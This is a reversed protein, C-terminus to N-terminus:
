VKFRSVLESLRASLRELEGVSVVTGQIAEDNERAMAAIADINETVTNSVQRQQETVRVIQDLGQRVDSVSENAADLVEAVREASRHSSALYELSAMVTQRVADSKANLSRTVEDIEIASQASKEALKRVEDAVVAFGRGHEGARAAEIAANLALLNTQEAIERVQRTMDTIAATSAMLDNEAQSMMSVTGEVRGVDDKLEALSTRGEESRALSEGSRQYVEGASSAIEGIHGALSEVAGAAEVSQTNQHHSGRALRGAGESLASASASVAASAAGVERVLDAITAMMQNFSAAARGIEDGGRVDLRRTLDGEGKAIEVLGDSMANLPRSVFRRIFLFVVAMLPLSVLCAFVISQNRFGEVARHTKELSIRMSVAGLPTKEPVIHCMLCNKGLYNSSALAPYVVRLAEGKVPDSEIGIYTKGENVAASEMPDSPRADNGVGPGFQKNVAPGRLVKLERVASLEKIQDLFVDRKAVTGTMMMGTLGALTMENMSHALDKAQDIAIDQSVRTEWAILGGWAM